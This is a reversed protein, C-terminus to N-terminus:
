ANIVPINNEGIGHWRPQSRKHITDSRLQLDEIASAYRVLTAESWASGMLALGFPMHSEENVGAPLTIM